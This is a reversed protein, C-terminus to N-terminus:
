IKRFFNNRNGAGRKKQLFTKEFKEFFDRFRNDIFFIQFNKEIFNVTFIKSVKKVTLKM